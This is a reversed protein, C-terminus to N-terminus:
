RSKESESSGGDLKEDGTETNTSDEKKDKKSSKLSRLRSQIENNPQSSYKQQRMKSSPRQGGGISTNRKEMRKGGGGGHGGEGNNKLSDLRTSIKDLLKFRSESVARRERLFVELDDLASVEATKTKPKYARLFDKAMEVSTRKGATPSSVLHRSYSNDPKTNDEVAVKNDHNLTSANEGGSKNSPFSYKILKSWKKLRKNTNSTRKPPDPPPPSNVAGEKESNGDKVESSKAEEGVEKTDQVLKTEVQESQLLSSIQEQAETSSPRKTEEVEAM